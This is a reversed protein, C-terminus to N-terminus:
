WVYLEHIMGDAEERYNYNSQTLRAHASLQTLAVVASDSNNALKKWGVGTIFVWSNRNQAISWLGGVKKNNLWTGVSGSNTQQSQTAIAPPPQDPTSFDKASTDDGGSVQAGPVLVPAATSTGSESTQSSAAQPPVLSPMAGGTAAQAQQSAAQQCGCDKNM